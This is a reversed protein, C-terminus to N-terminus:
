ASPREWHWTVSKDGTRVQTGGNGTVPPVVGTWTRSGRVTFQKTGLFM